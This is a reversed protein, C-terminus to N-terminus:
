ISKEKRRREKEYIEKSPEKTYIFYASLPGMQINTVKLRIRGDLM